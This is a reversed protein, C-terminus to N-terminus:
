RGTLPPRSAGQPRAQRSGPAPHASADADAEPGPGPHPKSRADPRPQPQAPRAAPASARRLGARPHGGRGGPRRAPVPPQAPRGPVAGDHRPLDEGACRRRRRGRERTRPARLVDREVRLRAHDRRVCRDPQGPHNRDERRHRPGPHDGEARYGGPLGGRGDHQGPHQRRGPAIANPKCHNGTDIVQGKDNKLPQGNQDLIKTVPTPDCHTGSAAVTSYASALDLPSTADPGLTFLGIQHKKYFDASHQNQANFHMGMAVATDVPGDISGLADELGVYYTNSSAVLGSTMDYTSKYNPDDNSIVLPGFVKDRYGKYVKSTYPQPAYISYHAGFGASLAAAATFVKYTSGSGHSPAVNLNVSECAPGNCGFRRNESMALVHGTGPQVADLVAAFRDGMPVNSLVGQDASRQLKPDLTTQITLGATDLQNQTLGLKGTM